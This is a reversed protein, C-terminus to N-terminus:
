LRESRNTTNRIFWRSWRNTEQAADWGRCWGASYSGICAIVAMGTLFAIVLYDIM